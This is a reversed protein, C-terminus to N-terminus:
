VMVLKLVNMYTSNSPYQLVKCCLPCRRILSIYLNFFLYLSNYIQECRHDSM